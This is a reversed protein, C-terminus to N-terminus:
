VPMMPTLRVTDRDIEMRAELKGNLGNKTSGGLFDFGLGEGRGPKLGENQKGRIEGVM